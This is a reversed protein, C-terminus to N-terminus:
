RCRATGADFSMRSEEIYRWDYRGSRLKMELVGFTEAKLYRSGAVPANSRRMSGGGTGAVFQRVGNRGLKGRETMPAFREYGHDHGTLLFEVRAKRLERFLGSVMENAGHQGSSFRPHHWFAAVCKKDNSRLDRRLWRQQMSMFACSIVDCNSNLSVVHWDGLEFSYWGRRKPGARDGFYEYYGAAGPTEYEHNGPTPRWVNRHVNWREDFGARFDALSGRPYQIDGLLWVSDPNLRATLDSVERHRCTTDTTSAGRACAIDGVAVVKKTAAQTSGVGLALTLLVMPLILSRKM